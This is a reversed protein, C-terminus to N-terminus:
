DLCRTLLWGGDARDFALDFIGRGAAQGGAAEVRWVEREALLDDVSPTTTGPSSDAHDGLLAAAGPSRWWRRTEVGHAEVTRVTWLRGRWIFQEPGEVSGTAAAVLGRRVGVADDYHRM